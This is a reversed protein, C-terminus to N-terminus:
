ALFTNMAQKRRRMSFGVLGLGGAMLSWTGPEPVEAADASVSLNSIQFAEPGDANYLMFKLTNIGPLFNASTEFATFSGFGNIYGSIQTDNLFVAGVNDALAQGSLSATSANYGTLDFTTFFSTITQSPADDTGSENVIRSTPSDQRYAPNYYTLAHAGTSEVFYHADAQGNGAALPAGDAGLGTNYVGPVLVAAQATGAFVVLASAITLSFRSIIM